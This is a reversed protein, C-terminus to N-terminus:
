VKVNAVESWREQPRLLHGLGSSISVGSIGETTEYLSAVQEFKPLSTRSTDLPFKLTRVQEGTRRAHM